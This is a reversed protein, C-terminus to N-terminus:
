VVFLPFLSLFRRAGFAEGAWWDAAAANAYWSLLVVLGIAALASTERRLFTWLGAASLLLLPAWTFLGHNDSFLVLFPHPSAWQMFGPGQPIALPQGYLVTWVAMQPAFAAFFAAGAAALGAARRSLPARWRLTEVVPVVLFIADQWRMLAAVGALAGSVALTAVSVRARTTWWHLFFLTATLMSAAHSYAPSVLSYYLAHTGLWVGWVALGAARDGAVARALRWAALAALTVAAIGTIGPVLQLARDFGDPPVTLGVISLLWLVGSVVLFLPLWLLAPGVPMYNRVRGTPTRAYDLWETGPDGAAVGYMGLYDNEFDLDRDYVLSRLQVYHHTADGFMVRGDPKRFVEMAVLHLALIAVGAAVIARTM